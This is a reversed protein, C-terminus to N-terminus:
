MKKERRELHDDSGIGHEFEKYGRQFVAGGIAILPLLDERSIQDSLAALRIAWMRALQENSPMPDPKPLTAMLELIQEATM